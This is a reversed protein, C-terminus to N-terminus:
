TGVGQLAVTERDPTVHKSSSVARGWVESVGLVREQIQNLLEGYDAL